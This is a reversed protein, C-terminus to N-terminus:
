DDNYGEILPELHHQFQNIELKGNQFTFTTPIWYEVTQNETNVKKRMSLLDSDSLIINGDPGLISLTKPRQLEPWQHSDAIQSWMCLLPEIPVYKKITRPKMDVIYKYPEIGAQMQRKGLENWYELTKPWDNRFFNVGEQIPIQSYITFGAKRIKHVAIMAEPSIQFHNALHAQFTFRVGTKRAFAKITELLKESIRFPLGLFITGTCIRLVRLHKANEFLELMKAIREDDLLLPEGGSIIVDYVQPHENMYEVLKQTQAIITGLTLGLEHNYERTYYSKYCGVCGIPCAAFVNMLLSHPFKQSALVMGTEKDLIKSEPTFLGYPDPNSALHNSFYDIEPIYQAAVEFPLAYNLPMISMSYRALVNKLEERKGQLQPFFTLLEELTTIRCLMHFYMDGWDLREREALERLQPEFPQAETRLEPMEVQMAKLRAKLGESNLEKEVYQKRLVQFLDRVDLSPSIAKIQENLKLLSTKSATRAIAQAYMTQM